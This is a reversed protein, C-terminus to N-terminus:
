NLKHVTLAHYKYSTNYAFIGNSTDYDYVKLRDNVNFHEVTTGSLNAYLNASGHSLLTMLREQFVDASNYRRAEISCQEGDGVAQKMAYFSVMYYGAVKIQIYNNGSVYGFHDTSTNTDEVDFALFEAASSSTGNSDGWRGVIPTAEVNGAIQADGSVKM